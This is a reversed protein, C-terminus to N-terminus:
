ADGDSEAARQRQLEKARRAGPLWFALVFALGVAGAAIYFVTGYASVARAAGVHATEPSRGGLQAVVISMLVAIGLSASVRRLLQRVAAAQAMFRTPLSNMAVVTNPMNALGNGLGGVGLYAAIRGPSTHPGMGGLLAMSAASLALGVLVPGRAGIRDTLRGGIPMTIAAGVASPVLLFGVHLPSFHRAEELELPVFTVRAFIALMFLSVITMSLAFTGVRFIRVDILPHRVRLARVVFGGVLAVGVAVLGLFRPSLWGWAPAQALALLLAGLGTAAVLLGLWDLPRDERFGTDRLLRRAVVFGVAGIPVNVLFLWQWPAVSILFGGLVPGIAPAAMAAIGWVGLATGRRDAPFLEYVMAQATPVMAGGGLGQLVRFAVLVWLTPSAACLASGITFLALSGLFVQRKGLRDALWGTAPQVIGVALLYATVVWDVRRAHGLADGIRSLAVNVITVDLIVMFVGVLVVFLAVWRYREEDRASRSPRERTPTAM